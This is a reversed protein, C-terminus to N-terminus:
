TSSSSLAEKEECDISSFVNIHTSMERRMQKLASAGSKAENLEHRLQMLKQTTDARLQREERLTKQLEELENVMRALQSNLTDVRKVMAARQEEKVTMEVITGKLEEIIRDRSSMISANSLSTDAESENGDEATVRWSPSEVQATLRNVRLAKACLKFRLRNCDESLRNTDELLRKNRAIWEDAEQEHKKKLGAIESKVSRLEDEAEMRRTQEKYLMDRCELYDETFDNGKPDKMTPLERMIIFLKMKLEFNEAKLAKNEELKEKIDVFVSSNSLQPPLPASFTAHPTWQASVVSSTRSVASSLAGDSFATIPAHVPKERLRREFLEKVNDNLSEQTLDQDDVSANVVDNVDSMMLTRGSHVDSLYYSS